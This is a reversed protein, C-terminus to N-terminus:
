RSCRDVPRVRVTPTARVVLLDTLGGARTRPRRRPSRRPSSQLWVVTGPTCVTPSRVGAHLEGPHGGRLAPTAPIEAVRDRRARSQSGSPASRRRPRQRWSSSRPGCCCRSWPRPLGRHGRAPSEGATAARGPGAVGGARGRGPRGGAPRRAGRRRGGRAPHRPEVALVDRARESRAGSGCRMGSSSSIGSSRAASWGDSGPSTSLHPNGLGRHPQRRLLRAGPRRERAPEVRRQWRRTRSASPVATESM